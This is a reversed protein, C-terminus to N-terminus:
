VPTPDAPAATDEVAEARHPNLAARVTERFTAVDGESYGPLV